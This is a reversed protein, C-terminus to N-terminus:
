PIGRGKKISLQDELRLDVALTGIVKKKLAGNEGVLSKCM